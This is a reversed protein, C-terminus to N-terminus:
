RRSWLSKPIPRRSTSAGELAPEERYDRRIMDLVGPMWVTTEDTIITAYRGSTIAERIEATLKATRSPDKQDFIDVLSMTHASIDERDAMAVLYNSNFALIPGPRAKVKELVARGAARDRRSALQERPAYAVVLWQLVVAAFAVAVWRRRTDAARLVAEVGVGAVLALYVLWPLIGNIWGSIKLLSTYGGALAGLCLGAYMAARREKFTGTVLGILGLVLVVPLPEWVCARLLPWWDDSRIAHSGAVTFTYYRFWGDTARDLLWFSTPCTVAMTVGAVIARQRSWLFAGALVAVAVLLGTQKTFFALTFLLGALAASVNSRGMRLTYFALLGVFAFLSDVRALDMIFGCRQFSVAIFSLALLAALPRGGEARVLRAVLVMSGVTAGVSVLRPALLGVGVIKAVLASAYFFVPPYLFPTFALHPEAYLSKGALIVQMETVVGGEMWELEFPYFLRQVVVVFLEVLLAVAGAAVLAELPRARLHGLMRGLM